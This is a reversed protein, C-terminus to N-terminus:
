EKEKETDPRLGSLLAYLEAPDAALLDAGADALEARSGGGWLVGVGAMGCAHGALIDTARDGVMACGAGDELGCLSMGYRLVDLKEDRSGDMSAGAVHTFYRSLNFHDLIRLTYLEPKSTALVLRAGSQKLQELMAPIGDYVSNEFLGVTSFRERYAEVARAATAADLEYVGSFSTMLPPGVFNGATVREDPTIGLKELAYRVCNLIGPASDTLTGDLDFFITDYPQTM